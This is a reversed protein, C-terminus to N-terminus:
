AASVAAVANPALGLSALVRARALRLDDPIAQGDTVWRTPLAIRSAIAALGADDPAEDAKTIILHTPMCAAYAARLGHAIDGRITAPIVLHVEDPALPRLLAQWQANAERERPGRGPTDVIVVDCDDLRKLAGIVERADYVVELALNAIEAFTNMQELAGVRYTDLTILGVRKGGFADPHLALKAATTTKGAGTPGVLALVFPGMRGRGGVRTPLAPPQTVLHSELEALDTARAAVVEVRTVSGDRVLNSRVILVDDGLALRADEFVRRLDTGYFTELRM